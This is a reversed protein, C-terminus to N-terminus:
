LFSYFGFYHWLIRWETQEGDSWGTTTPINHGISVELKHVLGFKQPNNKKPPHCWSKSYLQLVTKHSFNFPQLEKIKDNGYLWGYVCGIMSRILKPKRKFYALMLNDALRMDKLNIQNLIWQTTVVFSNSNLDIDQWKQTFSNNRKYKDWKNIWHKSNHNFLILLM